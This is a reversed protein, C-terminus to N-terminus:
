FIVEVAAGTRKGGIVLLELRENEREWENWGNALTKSVNSEANRGLQVDFDLTSLLLHLNEPYKGAM